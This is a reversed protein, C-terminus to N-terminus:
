DTEIAKQDNTNESPIEEQIPAVTKIDNQSDKKVITLVPMNAVGSTHLSTPQKQYGYELLREAIRVRLNRSATDEKGKLAKFEKNLIDIPDLKLKKLKDITSLQKNILKEEATQKPRGANPRYGGRPM